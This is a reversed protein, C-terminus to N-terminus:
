RLVGGVAPSALLAESVWHIVVRADNAVPALEVTIRPHRM